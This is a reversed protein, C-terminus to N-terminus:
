FCLVLRRFYFIPSGGMTVQGAKLGSQFSKGAFVAVGNAVSGQLIVFIGAWDL